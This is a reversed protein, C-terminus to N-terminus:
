IENKREKSESQGIKSNKEYVQDDPKNENNEKVEKPLKPLDVQAEDEQTKAKERGKLSVIGWAGSLALVPKPNPKASDEVVPPPKVEPAPSLMKAMIDNISTEPVRSARPTKIEEVQKKASNAEAAQKKRKIEELRKKKEEVGAALSERTGSM